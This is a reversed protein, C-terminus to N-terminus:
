HAPAEEEEIENIVTAIKWGTDTDLLTYRCTFQNLVEGDEDEQRWEVSAFATIGAVHIAGVEPVTTVIGADDFVDILAEVNEGLDEDDDFVHGESFQWITAPYAFLTTVAEADADDFGAGYEAFIARIESENNRPM